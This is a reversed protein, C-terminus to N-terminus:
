CVAPFIQWLQLRVVNTCGAAAAAAGPNTIYATHSNHFDQSMDHYGDSNQDSHPHNTIKFVAEGGGGEQLDNIQVGMFPLAIQAVHDATPWGKMVVRGGKWGRGTRAETRGRCPKVGDGLGASWSVACRPICAVLPFVQYDTTVGGWEVGGLDWWEEGGGGGGGGVARSWREYAFICGHSRSVKPSVFAACPAHKGGANTVAHEHEAEIHM